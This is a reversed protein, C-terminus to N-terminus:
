HGYVFNPRQPSLANARSSSASNQRCTTNTKSRRYLTVDHTVFGYDALSYEQVWDGDHRIVKLDVGQDFISDRKDVGEFRAGATPITRQM